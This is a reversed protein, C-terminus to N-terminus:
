TDQASSAEEANQAEHHDGRQRLNSHRHRRLPVRISIWEDSQIVGLGSVRQEQLAAIPQPTLDLHRFM